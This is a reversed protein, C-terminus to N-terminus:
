LETGYVRPRTIRDILPVCLNMLLVAFSIGDPYGGWTRIVYALLGVGAGFVLRGRDTTAASVPDTAIFFAGLMTAGTFLHFIPSPFRSADVLYMLTAVCFFTGLMAAPIQWRIVGAYLLYLGGLGIFPNIWEWGRGGFDGFLPNARIETTTQMGGLGTKLMDLPTAGTIADLTLGPPLRNFLSYDLTALFGLHPYDLDGINPPLWTTMQLPFSVLLAVYAVMAPNFPNLGLGGYVQKALVIAILVGVTMLWWPALPPMAFALLVATVLASGDKLHMGIPRGRLRLCAAEAALAISCGIAMNIILGWGFFWVYAITAPLLALLVRRMTEAISTRPPRHPAPTVRFEM